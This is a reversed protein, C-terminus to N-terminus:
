SAANLKGKFMGTLKGAISNSRKPQQPPTLLAHAQQDASQHQSQYPLPRPLQAAYPQSVNFPQLNLAAYPPVPYQQQAQKAEYPTAAPAM